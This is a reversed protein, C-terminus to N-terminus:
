SNPRGDNFWASLTNIRCDSHKPANQPMPSPGEHRVSRLLQGNLTYTKAQEYTELEVGGSALAASHCSICYQDLIQVVQVSYRVATTDCASECVTNKAGQEIWRRILDLQENTLPSKGQPMRDGPDTDTISKWLKSESPDGARVIDSNM